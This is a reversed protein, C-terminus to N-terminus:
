SNIITENITFDNLFEEFGEGTFTGKLGKENKKKKIKSM